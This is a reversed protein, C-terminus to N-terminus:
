LYCYFCLHNRPETFEECRSEGKVGVETGPQRGNEKQVLSERRQVTVRQQEWYSLQVMTCWPTPGATEGM